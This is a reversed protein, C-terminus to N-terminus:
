VASFHEGTKNDVCCVRRDKYNQGDKTADFEELGLIDLILYHIGCDKDAAYLKNNEPFIDVPLHEV